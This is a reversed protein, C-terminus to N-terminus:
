REHALAILAYGLRFLALELRMRRAICSFALTKHTQPSGQFSNLMLRLPFSSYWDWRVIFPLSAVM